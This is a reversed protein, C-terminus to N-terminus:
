NTLLTDFDIINSFFQSAIVNDNVGNVHILVPRISFGKPIVLRNIKEQVEHIVQMGLPNKSFKIECLYLTNFRTQILYDIQCKQRQKTQTQLYPNSILIEHDSFQLLQHLLKRNNVVLNEFQLGIISEWGPPLNYMENNDIQNKYPLIYKLYFRLYNDSLRYQSIASSKGTNLQWVHDRRIFGDSCLESLQESLDGGKSRGLSKAIAELNNNGEAISQVLGKYHKDRKEFLDSFIDDFENFLVGERQYCLNFINQEATLKPQIEELYRPIGGTVALVKLKEYASINQTM